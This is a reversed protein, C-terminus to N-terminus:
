RAIGDNDPQPRKGHDRHGLAWFGSDRKRETLPGPNADAAVAQVATRLQKATADDLADPRAVLWDCLLSGHIFTCKEDEYLGEDFDSWLVIVAHVWVRRGTRRKIDEHLSAAGGLASSRMWRCRTDAEPDSRRRLHPEGDRMHVVGQPNKTDLLFIGPPGSVIHDYNGRACEVDHVVLWGSRDLAALASETKREGEAGLQWNEIYAPPSERIAVWMGTGLGFVVGALWVVPHGAIILGVSGFAVLPGFCAAIVLRTRSRWAHLARRYRADAYRGARLSGGDFAM